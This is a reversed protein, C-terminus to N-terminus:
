TKPDAAPKPDVLVFEVREIVPRSQENDKAFMGLIKAAQELSVNKNAFTYKKMIGRLKRTNGDGDFLETFQVSVLAAAIDDPLENIPIPNGEEDFARRIDFYALRAIELRTRRVEVDTPTEKRAM